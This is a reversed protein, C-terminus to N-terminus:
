TIISPMKKKYDLARTYYTYNVNRMCQAIQDNHTIVAEISMEKQIVMINMTSNKNNNNKVLLTLCSAMNAILLRRHEVGYKGVGCLHALSNSRHQVGPPVQLM